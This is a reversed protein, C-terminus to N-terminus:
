WVVPSASLPDIRAWSIFRLADGTYRQTKPGASRSGLGERGCSHGLPGEEEQGLPSLLVALALELM